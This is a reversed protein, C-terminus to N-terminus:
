FKLTFGGRVTRGPAPVPITNLADVYYRDTLNDVSLDFSANQNLKYSAYLDVLTYPSWKSPTISYVGSVQGSEDSTGMGEVFRSGIYSIRTGVTLDSDFFRSGLNLTLTDKPPVQQQSFSNYLGGPACRSAKPNLVGEKACFMIDTYHNWALGGFVRGSDYQASLEFGRM